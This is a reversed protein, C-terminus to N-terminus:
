YVRKLSLNVTGVGSWTKLTMQMGLSVREGVDRPSPLLPTNPLIHNFM